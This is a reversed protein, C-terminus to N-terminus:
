PTYQYIQADATLAVTPDASVGEAITAAFGDLAAFDVHQYYVDTNVATPYGPEANAPLRPIVRTANTTPAYLTYVRRTSATLEQDLAIWLIDSPPPQAPLELKIKAHAPDGFDFLDTTSATTPTTPTWPGIADNVSVLPTQRLRVVYPNDPAITIQEEVYAREIVNPIEVANAFAMDNVPKNESFAFLPADALSLFSTDLGTVKLAYSTANPPPSLVDWAKPVFTTDTLALSVSTSGSVPLNQEGLFGFALADTGDYAVLLLSTKTNGPCGRYGAASFMSTTSVTPSGKCSAHFRFSDAAPPPSTGAVNYTVAAHPNTTPDDTEEDRFKVPAGPPVDLYAYAHLDGEADTEAIYTVSGGDPIDVTVTGDAATTMETVVDGAADNIVIRAGQIPMGAPDVVTVTEMTPASGGTGSTSETGTSAVSAATSSGRSTSTETGTTEAGTTTTTTTQAAEGGEGGSFRECGLTFLLPALAGARWFSAREM